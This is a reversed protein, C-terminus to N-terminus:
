SRAFGCFVTISGSGTVNGEFALHRNVTGAVTKRQAGVATANDFAVLDAYTIDDASDRVTGVFGSFGSFAVIQMYAVGGAASSAGNDVSGAGETDWDSTKAELPQLIVGEDLQGRVSYATNARQLDEKAAVVQYEHSYAGEVGYFPDAAAIGGYGFTVIREVAQPSSPVSGSLAAHSLGAGTDFFAGEQALEIDRVGLPARSKWPMGIGHTEIM